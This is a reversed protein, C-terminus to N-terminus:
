SIIFLRPRVASIQGLDGSVAIGNCKAVRRVIGAGGLGHVTHRRGIIMDATTQVTFIDPIVFQNVQVVIGATRIAIDVIVSFVVKFAIRLTVYYRQKVRVTYDFRPVPPDRIIWVFCIRYMYRFQTTNCM